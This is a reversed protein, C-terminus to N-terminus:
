YFPTTSPAAPRPRAAPSPPVQVRISFAPHRVSRSVCPFSGFGASRAGAATPQKTPSSGCQVPQVHSRSLITSLPPHRVGAGCAQTPLQWALFGSFQSTLRCLRCRQGAGRRQSPGDVTRHYGVTKLQPQPNRGRNPSTSAAAVTRHPRRRQQSQRGSSVRGSGNNGDNTPSAACPPLQQQPCARAQTCRYM